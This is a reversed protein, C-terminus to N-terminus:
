TGPGSPVHVVMTCELASWSMVGEAPSYDADADVTSNFEIRSVQEISSKTPENNFLIREVAEILAEGDDNDGAMTIRRVASLRADGVGGSMLLNMINAIQYDNMDLNGLMPQTGDRALKEDDLEEMGEQVDDAAILGGPQYEIDEAAHSHAPVTTHTHSSPGGGGGGSAASALTGAKQLRARVANYILEIDAQSFQSPM